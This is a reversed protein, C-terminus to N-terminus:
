TVWSRHEAVSPLHPPYLSELVAALALVGTDDLHRGMIQLGIPLGDRTFGVPVSAAPLGTFNGLASFALWATSSVVAGDITAPGELGLGFAASGTTPTLFFEHTEMFRWTLNVARKRLMQSSSFEAATWDREVLRGLWGELVIGQESAM